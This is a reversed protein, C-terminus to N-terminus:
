AEAAPPTPGPEVRNPDYKGDTVYLHRGGYRKRSHLASGVINGIAEEVTRGNSSLGYHGDSGCNYSMTGKGPVPIHEGALAKADYALRVLKFPWRPRWWTRRQLEITWRYSGEPMPIDVEHTSLTEFRHQRRGLVFRPINFSGDRWRPTSSSWGQSDSLLNWHLTWDFVRVSVISVLDYKKVRALRQFFQELRRALPVSIWLSFPPCAINFALEQEHDTELQAGFFRSWMSFEIHLLTRSGKFRHLWFRPYTWGWFRKGELILHVWLGLPKLVKNLLKVM